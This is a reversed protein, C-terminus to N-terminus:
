CKGAAGAALSVKTVVGLSSWRGQQPETRCFRPATKGNAEAHSKDCTRLRKPNALLMSNGAAKNKEMNLKRSTAATDHGVWDGRSTVQKQPLESLWGWVM